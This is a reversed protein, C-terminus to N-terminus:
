SQVKIRGGPDVVTDFSISSGDPATDLRATVQFRLTLVEDAGEVNAIEVDRLRPEYKEISARLIKLVLAVANPSAGTIDSPAPMGMDPQAAAHGPRTNFLHQLNLLVSRRLQAVDVVARRVEDRPRSLRELLSREASM